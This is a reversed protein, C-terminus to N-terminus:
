ASAHECWVRARHSCVLLRNTIVSSQLVALRRLDRVGRESGECYLWLRSIGLEYLGTEVSQGNNNVWIKWM